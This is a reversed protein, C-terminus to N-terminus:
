FRKNRIKRPWILNSGLFDNQDLFILVISIESRINLLLLFNYSSMKSRWKTIMIKGSKRTVLFIYQRNSEM